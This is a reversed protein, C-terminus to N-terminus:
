QYIYSFIIIYILLLIFNKLGNPSYFCFLISRLELWCSATLHLVGVVRAHDRCKVGRSFIRTVFVSFEPLM